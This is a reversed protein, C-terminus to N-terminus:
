FHAVRLAHVGSDGSSEGFNIQEAVWDANSYSYNPFAEQLSTKGLLLARTFEAVQTIDAENRVEFPAVLDVGTAWNLRTRFWSPKIVCDSQTALLEDCIEDSETFYESWQDPTASSEYSVVKKRSKGVSKYHKTVVGFVDTTPEPGAEMVALNEIEDFYSQRPHQWWVMVRRKNLIFGFDDWWSLGETKTPDYSHPVFLGKENLRWPNNRHYQRQLVGLKEMGRHKM